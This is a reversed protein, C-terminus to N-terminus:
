AETRSTAGFTVPRLAENEGDFTTEGVELCYVGGYTIRRGNLYDITLTGDAVSDYDFEPSNAPVVADGSVTYRPIMNMYATKRMLPVQKRLVRAGEKVNKLDTLEQGNVELAVQSVLESM